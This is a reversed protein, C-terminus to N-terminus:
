GPNKATWASLRGAEHCSQCVLRDKKTVTDPATRWNRAAEAYRTNPMGTIVKDLMANATDRNGARFETEAVGVLVEGKFHPPFRDLGAGQMKYLAAYQDKALTLARAYHREPLRGLFTMVTGGSTALVGVNQPEAATATAFKAMADAFLQDGGKDDCSEFARVARYVNGAGMWNLADANSANEDLYEQTKRMGREFRTMDDGLFGAFTDERVWTYFPINKPRADQSAAFTLTGAFVLSAGTLIKRMAIGGHSM